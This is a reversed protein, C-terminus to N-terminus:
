REKKMKQNFTQYIGCFLCKAFDSSFFLIFVENKTWIRYIFHVFRISHPIFPKKVIKYIDCGSDNVVMM